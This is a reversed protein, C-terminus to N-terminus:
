KSGPPRHPPRDLDVRMLARHGNTRASKQENEFRDLADLFQVGRLDPAIETLLGPIADLILAARSGTPTTPLWDAWRPHPRESTPVLSPEDVFLRRRVSSSLDAQTFNTMEEERISVLADHTGSATVAIVLRYRVRLAQSTEPTGYFFQDSWAQTWIGTLKGEYGIFPRKPGDLTFKRERRDEEVSSMGSVLAHTLQWVREPDANIYTRTYETQPTSHARHRITISACGGLLLLAAALAVGLAVPFRAHPLTFM